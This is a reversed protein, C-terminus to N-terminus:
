EVLSLKLSDVWREKHRVKDEAKDEVVMRLSLRHHRSLCGAVWEGYNKM